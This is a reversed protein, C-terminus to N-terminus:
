FRSHPHRQGDKLLIDEIQSYSKHNAYGAQSIVNFSLRAIHNSLDSATDQSSSVSGSFVAATTLDLQVKSDTVFDEAISYILNSSFGKSLLLSTAESDIKRLRHELSTLYNSVTFARNPIQTYIERLENIIFDLNWKADAVKSSYEEYSSEDNIDLPRNSRVLGRSNLNPVKLYVSKISDNLEAITPVRENDRIFERILQLRVSKEMEQSMSYM